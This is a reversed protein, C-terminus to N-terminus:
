SRSGTGSLSVDHPSAGDGSARVALTASEAGVTSPTFKLVYTCHAGGGALTVGCTGGTTVKFDSPGSIGESLSVAAGGLNTVTVTRAASTSGENVTGFALSAPLVTLPTVGTGNLSVAPPGDNPDQAVGISLTGSEASEAGPTFTVAYTCSSSAALSGSPLPCSGGTVAFAGRNAGGISTGTLTIPGTTHNVVTVSMTKSATQAVNTYNLSTPSVSEPVSASGSFSVTYPGRPDPIDSVTMIASETGVAIPAFTVILTCATNAALTSTCTGGGTISFDGHNPGSFGESLLVSNTQYNHVTISRTATSGDRVSGFSDSAPTVTMTITGTGSLAVSQPGTAANDYISLTASHAGLASPTFGIAITCTAGPLTGSCTSAGPAFETLSSSSVNNVFLAAHGNNKITLNKTVTDGVPSSGFSLSTAVSMSTLLTYKLVRNNTTDAVYLNGSSDLAAGSPDCLSDAGASTGGFNCDNSTFSNNQGFVADAATLQSTLPANYELVRNNGQDAVWLNDASDVAVGYPNCLNEATANGGRPRSNCGARAFINGQGFVMNATAGYTLPTNYELVRSNGGDAVYLNGSSDVAVGSPYSLSSTGLGGYNATNSNFSGGQGFVMNATAGNTLPTNYELVRNNSQDAVYLNGGADVAVGYPYCLDIATPTSGTDSNCGTSAPSSGQGFVLNAAGGVCPFSGGCGAFPTNYELVRSNGEDAVYLNGSSDVTIGYPFCLDSASAVLPNGTDSNCGTSYFDPQGIVLDAPSGNTFATVDNWGLLRSNSEDAVYLHTQAGTGDGTADITVASPNWLSYQDAFNALNHLFDLQGLVVDAIPDTAFPTNYKLVRNNSTDAVYLNGVADVAVGYPNCLGDDTPNGGGTDSNCGASDSSGGQGLVMNAGAGNTLPANYKLVRNNNADAVYLDGSADVAVGVPRYLSNASVGGNNARNSNFSGGQGLVMHAGAGNTLPANYELVRNNITDAVYLNGNADVAVGWPSNLSYASVGGLNATHTSSSGQGFVMNASGGASPFSGGFPTNYELVRNNGQDAVYLNGSLDVAVAYPSCLSSGSVGGSNCATSNFDPQGIVLDAASGNTATGNKWGLVRSNQVDAVYLNGSADIAVGQPYFLKRASPFNVANYTFNAQGLVLDATGDGAISVTVLAAAIILLFPAALKWFGFKHM